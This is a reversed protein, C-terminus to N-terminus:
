GRQSRIFDQYFYYSDKPIRQQTEFDVYVLGYRLEFGRRWEFNDMLSWLFYGTVPAGAAIARSLEAFHAQLFAIRRPDHVKGDKAVHDPTAAGNETIVLRRFGYERHLRTLVDYLGEPYVERDETFTRGYEWYGRTQPAGGEPYDQVLDRNYYNVGLFDIPTAILELDGPLMDPVAAAYYDWMDQPYGRGALPDIFWRNFFGDQRRAAAVDGPHQSLPYAPNINPAIGVWAEPKIEARLAAAALGHSVLVHHAVQLAAKLDRKGPAFYGFYNGLIATCWMENHTMWAPLRDGLRRAVVGAYEAFAQATARVEWGGQDQLTQPLDWHYLTAMPQIGAALLADVLRDYFDLGAPNVQGRGAPLIRPWAISFRYAQIGLDKMLQIDQPYRHYHDCAVAGSSGDAIIGPQSCFRDWISASRGDEGVAGEIQYASTAVGWFFEKPFRLNAIDPM